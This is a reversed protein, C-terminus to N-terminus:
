REVNENMVLQLAFCTVCSVNVQNIGTVLLGDASAEGCGVM